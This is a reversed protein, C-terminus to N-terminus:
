IADEPRRDAWRSFEGRAFDLLLKRIEENLRRTIQQKTLGDLEPALWQGFALLACKLEYVRQVTAQECESANHLRKEEVDNSIRLGRARERLVELKAAREDEAATPVNRDRQLNEQRWLRIAELDSKPWPAKRAFSWRPDRVWKQVAAQTVGM